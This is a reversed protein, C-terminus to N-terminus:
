RLKYGAHGEEFLWIGQREGKKFVEYAAYLNANEPVDVAYLTREEFDASEYTCGFSELERWLVDFGAPDNVIIRYTSRGSHAVVGRYTLGGHADPAARIIDLFSVGKAFFPTNELEYAGPQMDSGLPKAWLSESPTRHWDAPDLDFRVKVLDSTM